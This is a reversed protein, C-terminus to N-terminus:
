FGCGWHYVPFRFSYLSRCSQDRKIEWIFSFCTWWCTKQAERTACINIFGGTICSVRTLDKPQSSGRSFPTAVWGLVRAQLIGHASSGPPSCDMPDCLTLCSQALKLEMEKCIFNVWDEKKGKMERGGGGRYVSNGWTNKTGEKGTETDKEALTHWPLPKCVSDQPSPSTIHPPAEGTPCSNTSGWSQLRQPELLRRAETGPRM